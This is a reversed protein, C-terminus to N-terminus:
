IKLYFFVAVYIDQELIKAGTFYNLENYWWLIEGRKSVNLEGLTDM